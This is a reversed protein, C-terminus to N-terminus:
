HWWGKALSRFLNNLICALLFLYIVSQHNITSIGTLKELRDTLPNMCNNKQKSTQKQWRFQLQVPKQKNTKGLHKSFHMKNVWRSKYIFDISHFSISKIRYRTVEHELNGWVKWNLDCINFIQKVSVSLLIILQFINM